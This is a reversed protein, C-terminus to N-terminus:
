VLVDLLQVRTLYGELTQVEDEPFTPTRAVACTVPLVAALDEVLCTASVVIQQRGAGVSLSAGRGELEDAIADADYRATGRDLVRAVLAATGPAGPPDMTAGANAGIALSVAPILRNAQAVITIGNPLVRRQPDLAM